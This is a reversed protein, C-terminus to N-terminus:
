FTLSFDTHDKMAGEMGPCGTPRPTCRASAPLARTCPAARHPKCASAGLGTPPCSATHTSLQAVLGPVSLWTPLPLPNSVCSSCHSSAAADINERQASIVNNLLCVLVPAAPHFCTNLIWDSEVQSYIVRHLVASRGFLPPVERLKEKSGVSSFPFRRTGM